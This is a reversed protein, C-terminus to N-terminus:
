FLRLPFLELIIGYLGYIWFFHWSPGLEPIKWYRCKRNPNIKPIYWRELRKISPPPGYTTRLLATIALYQYINLVLNLWWLLLANKSFTAFFNVYLGWSDELFRFQPIKQFTSVRVNKRVDKRFRGSFSNKPPWIKSLLQYGPLNLSFVLCTTIKKPKSVKKPASSATKSVDEPSPYSQLLNVWPFPVAAIKTEFTTWLIGAEPGSKLEGMSPFCNCFIEWALNWVWFALIPVLAAM